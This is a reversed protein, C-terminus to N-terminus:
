KKEVDPDEYDESSQGADAFFTDTRLDPSAMRTATAASLSSMTQGVGGATSSYAMTSGRSVGMAAGVAWADQNAGLYVVTWNENQKEAILKKITELTYEVSSNEEGDTIIVLLYSDAEVEQTESIAKGIADFLPTGGGPRYNTTTLRPALTSVVGNCIMRSTVTSFAMLSVLAEPADNNLNDLYTNVAGRTDDAIPGMSGSEDLVM